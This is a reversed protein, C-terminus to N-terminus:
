SKDELSLTQSVWGTRSTCGNKRKCLIKALWLLSINHQSNRWGRDFHRIVDPFFGRIPKRECLFVESWMWLTRCSTPRSHWPSNNAFIASFRSIQSSRHGMLSITAGKLASPLVNQLSIRCGYLNIRSVGAFFIAYNFDVGEQLTCGELSDSHLLWERIKRWELQCFVHMGLLSGGGWLRCSGLCVSPIISLWICTVCGRFM